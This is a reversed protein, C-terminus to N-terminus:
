IDCFPTLHEFHIRYEDLVGGLTELTNSEWGPVRHWCELVNYQVNSTYKDTCRQSCARCMLTSKLRIMFGGRLHWIREDKGLYDEHM